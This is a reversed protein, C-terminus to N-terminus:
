KKKRIKMNFGGGNKKDLCRCARASHGGLGVWEKCWWIMHVYHLTEESSSTLQWNDSMMEYKFAM